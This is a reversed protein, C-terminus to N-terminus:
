HPILPFMGEPVSAGKQAIEQLHTAGYKKAYDYRFGDISVLVVYHKQLQAAANPAQDVTIVAALQQAGAVPLTVILLLLLGLIRRMM